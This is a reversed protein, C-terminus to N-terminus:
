ARRRWPRALVERLADVLVLGLEPWDPLWRPVIM